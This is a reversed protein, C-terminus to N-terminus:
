RLGTMNALKSVNVLEELDTRIQQLVWSATDPPSGSFSRDDHYLTTSPLKGDSVDLSFSSDCRIVSIVVATAPTQPVASRVARVAIRIAPTGNSPRDDRAAITGSLSSKVASSVIETSLGCAESDGGIDFALTSRAVDKFVIGRVYTTTSMLEYPSPVQDKRLHSTRAQVILWGNADLWLRLTSRATGPAGGIIANSEILSVLTNAHTNADMEWSVHETGAEPHIRSDGLRFEKAPPADLTTSQVRLGTADQTIVIRESFLPGGVRIGNDIFNKVTRLRIWPGSLDARSEVTNSAAPPTIRQAVGCKSGVLVLLAIMAILTWKVVSM